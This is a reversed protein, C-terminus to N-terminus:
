KRLTDVALKGNSNFKGQSARAEKLGSTRLVWMQKTAAVDENERARIEIINNGPTLPIDAAFELRGTKPDAAAQYFVKEQSGFLNRAPNYVSIYVDRVAEDDTALGSIHVREADTQTVAGVLAIKPPSIVLRETIKPKGASGGPKMDSAKAFAFRKSDLEVRYWGDAVGLVKLASGPEIRAVKLDQGPLPSAYLDVASGAVVHGSGAAFTVTSSALPLKLKEVLSAGIKADAVALQLSIIGDPAAKKVEFDFEVVRTDGPAVVKLNERGTHLYVADGVLNRLTVWADLAQGEGTNKFNVRM